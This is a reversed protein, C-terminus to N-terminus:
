RAALTSKRLFKNAIAMTDGAVLFREDKTRTMVDTTYPARM